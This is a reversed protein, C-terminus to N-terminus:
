NSIPIEIEGPFEIMVNSTPKTEADSGGLKFRIPVRMRTKVARGRQLGPEWTPSNEIVRIAEEDCGGGIGRLIDVDSISGDTNIVFVAIVTGEIGMQRAQSPYTLNSGLYSNWGQMGGPPNPQEEVVDFIEDGMRATINSPGIAKAQEGMQTPGEIEEQANTLDCSFMFFMLGVIPLAMFFRIL